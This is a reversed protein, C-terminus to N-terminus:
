SYFKRDEYLAARCTDHTMHQMVIINVIQLWMLVTTVHAACALEVQDVVIM